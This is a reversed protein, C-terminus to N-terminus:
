FINLPIRNGTGRKKEKGGKGGKGPLFIKCETMKM